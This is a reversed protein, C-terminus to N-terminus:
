THPDPDHGANHHDMTGGPRLDELLQGTSKNDGMPM